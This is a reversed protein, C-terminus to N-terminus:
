RTAVRVVVRHGRVEDVLHAAGDRDSPATQRFLAVARATSALPGRAPTIAPSGAGGQEGGQRRPGSGGAPDWRGADAARRRGAVLGQRGNGTCLGCDGRRCRVGVGVARRAGSRYADRGGTLVGAGVRFISRAGRRARVRVETLRCSEAAAAGHHRPESTAEADKVQRKRSDTSRGTRGPETRHVGRDGHRRGRRDARPRPHDAARGRQLAPHAVGAPLPVRAVRAARQLPRRRLRGDAVRHAAGRDPRGDAAVRCAFHYLAILVLVIAAALLGGNSSVGWGLLCLGALVLYMIAPIRRREMTPFLYPGVYATVDLEEPLADGEERPM